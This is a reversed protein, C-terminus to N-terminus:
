GHVSWSVSCCRGAGQLDWMGWAGSLPRNSWTAAILLDDVLVGTEESALTWIHGALLRFGLGFSLRVVIYCPCNSSCM